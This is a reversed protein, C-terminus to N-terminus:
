GEDDDEDGGALDRFADALEPRERMLEQAQGM